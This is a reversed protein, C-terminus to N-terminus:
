VCVQECGDVAENNAEAAKHAFAKSIKNKYSRLGHMRCSFVHLITLLDQTLESEPSINSQKLVVIEGANRKIIWEILDFGFRCLRDKHAVVLQLKNGNIASELISTLGKRKFNIGSGIDKVVEAEPYQTKMFDVQRELDDRQKYSSVRCYCVVKPPVTLGLYDDVDFRRQGSALTVAKIKGTDAWKRLTNPHVGIREAAVRTPVLRM